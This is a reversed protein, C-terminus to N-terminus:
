VEFLRHHGRSEIVSDSSLLELKSACLRDLKFNAIDILARIIKGGHDNRKALIADKLEARAIPKKQHERLLM